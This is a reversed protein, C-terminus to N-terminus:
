DLRQWEINMFQIQLEIGSSFLFRQEFLQEDFLEIEDYGLEGYSAPGGLAKDPTGTSGFRSVETYILKLDHYEHTAPGNSPFLAKLLFELRKSEMDLYFHVIQADHLSINDVFDALNATFYPRISHIYSNYQELDCESDGRWWDLTFYKM